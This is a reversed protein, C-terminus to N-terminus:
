QLQTKVQQLRGISAENKTPMVRKILRILQEASLRFQQASSNSGANSTNTAGSSGDGTNINGGDLSTPPGAIQLLKCEKYVEDRIRDITQQLDDRAEIPLKEELIAAFLKVESLHSYRRLCDFLNYVIEVVASHDHQLKDKCDCLLSLSITM